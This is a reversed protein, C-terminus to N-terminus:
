INEMKMIQHYMCVDPFFDKVDDHVKPLNANCFTDGLTFLFETHHYYADKSISTGGMAQAVGQYGVYGTDLHLTSYVHSLNTKYFYDGILTTDTAKIKDYVCNRNRCHATFTTALGYGVVQFKICRRCFRCRHKSAM